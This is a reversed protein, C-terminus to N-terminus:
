IEILKLDQGCLKAWQRIENAYCGYGAMWHHGIGESHIWDIIRETSTEFKVRLPNGPFVMETSVAQGELMAIQYKAGCPIISLMTIPGPRSTFLSCCGQHMLRVPSLTIDGPKEALSFSGNGCHTFVVSGDELPELWDTNHTPQESLLTLILQGVAGHVDGECAVPIGEDALLSGALCVRGMLDPYCGLALADIDFEDVLEKVAMYVKISDLGDEDTVKCCGSRAIVDRWLEEAQEPSVEGARKLLSPMDLNVIRPGITKKLAFENASVETMGRVRYGGFGIKARRLTKKLTAALAFENVQNLKEECDLSGYGCGSTIDLQHLYATLQQTGCLAGTDMGPHSWLLLPLSFEELMDLVLYDEFWSASVLVVADPHNAAIKRGAAVAKQPTDISDVNEVHFGLETLLSVTEALIKKAKDAGVELPSSLVGVAIDPVLKNKRELM